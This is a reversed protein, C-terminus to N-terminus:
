PIYYSEQPALHMAPLPKNEPYIVIKELIVNPDVAYFKLSNLGQSFSVTINVKRINNTVGYSWEDNIWEAYYDVPITDFLEPENDNISFCSKITGGKIMPNRPSLYFSVIYEQEQSLVFNYQVYPRNNENEWNKTIPFAKIANGDRGLRPVVHWGMGEVDIKTAYNDAHICLYDQSELFANPYCSYDRNSAKVELLALKKQGNAFSFDIQILAIDDGNLKGHDCYIKISTRPQDKLCSEGRKQSFSLWSKDCSITFNFDVDGRSDIDLVIENVDPRMMESNCIPTKDQWHYGLNYIDYGRFSVVIKPYPIPCITQVIPYTWNNDDWSNFCMHASNMMHNWKGNLFKHFEDTYHRDLSIREQVCSSYQNAILTGRVAHVHNMGAELNILMSNFFATVPFYVMSEYAFLCQQPLEKRLTDVKLMINIIAEHTNEIEHFNNKFVEPNLSEPIRTTSWMTYSDLISHIQKNQQTSIASGFQTNIWQTTYDITSNLNSIGWKEYDYALDMFFSLPYEKGKIDGVNVIWMERMGYEYAMTLQEWTKTLTVSNLWEHSFPSGHYDFHYYIGYGGSHPNDTLQPIARLNGYNDDSYLLIVDEIESWNHLGECDASGFYFDEVEKYIALMRPVEKLDSNINDKILQNQIAIAKKLVNINDQLTADEGMLLSDDEGRMGITIVNELGKSRQIGDKWFETIAHSNTIFSWTNDDGYKKYQNQWESGSRCLPEHHSTGIIVGYEDALRANEMGPGDEWFSTEWWMAPWLYNGKLRLILEFVKDYAKANIGGYREECWKGFAPWEDNIFFGRYRVSPEKSIIDDSFILQIKEQAIPIADGWFVLPSVGCLESLHFMGYITGRKDSGIILLAQKIKPFEIFPTEVLKMLYCERKGAIDEANLLSREILSDILASCKLTAAIIVQESQCEEPHSVINPKKGTVLSLDHSVTEAVLKVGKLASVECFIDIIAGNEFLCFSSM